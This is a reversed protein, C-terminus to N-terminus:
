VRYVCVCLPPVLSHYQLLCSSSLMEGYAGCVSSFEAHPTTPCVCCRPVVIEKCPGAPCPTLLFCFLCAFTAVRLVSCWPTLPGFWCVVPGGLYLWFWPLAIHTDCCFVFVTVFLLPAHGRLTYGAALRVHWICYVSHFVEFQRGIM